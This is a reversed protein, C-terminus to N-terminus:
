SRAAKSCRRQGWGLTCRAVKRPRTYRLTAQSHAVQSRPAAATSFIAGGYSGAGYVAYNGSFTCRRLIVNSSSLYIAGGTAICPPSAASARNGTFTCGTLTASGGNIKIAGGHGSCDDAYNDTFNCRTLTASGGNVNIAGGGNTQNPSIVTNKTFTCSTLTASGGNVYIAGGGGWGELM